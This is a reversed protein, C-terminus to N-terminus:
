LDKAKSEKVLPEADDHWTSIQDYIKDFSLPGKQEWLFGMKIPFAHTTINISTEPAPGRQAQVSALHMM